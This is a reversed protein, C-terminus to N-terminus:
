SLEKVYLDGGEHVFGIDLLYEAYEDGRAHACIRKIGRKEFMEPHEVFFYKGLKMDRYRPIVYDIEIDLEEGERRGVVIGAIDSNRMYYLARPSSKIKEISTIKEIDERNAELFYDFLESDIDAHIVAFEEQLTYYRYLYYINIAVIGFNLFAVPISEILVGYTSFLLAGVLNIWRLKVISAMTLSILVIVSALYGLWEAFDFEM